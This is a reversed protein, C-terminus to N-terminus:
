TIFAFEAFYYPVVKKDNENEALLEFTRIGNSSKESNMTTVMFMYPNSKKAKGSAQKECSADFFL